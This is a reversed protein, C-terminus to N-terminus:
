CGQPVPVVHWFPCHTVVLGHLLLPSHSEPSVFVPHGLSQLLATPALQVAFLWHLVFKQLPWVPVQWVAVVQVSVSWSPYPLGPLVAQEAPDERGSQLSLLANTFGPAISCHL